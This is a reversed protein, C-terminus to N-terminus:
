DAQYPCIYGESRRAPDYGRGAQAFVTASAGSIAVVLACAVALVFAKQSNTM